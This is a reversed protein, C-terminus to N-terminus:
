GQCRTPSPASSPTASSTPSASRRLGTRERFGNIVKRNVELLKAPVNRFSTATPVELSREMNAAIAAGAGRIPKGPEDAGSTAVPTVVPAPGPAPPSVPPVAGHEASIERVRPSAAAAAAVTPTQSRYDAFFEQWSASVSNPDHVFQEYM